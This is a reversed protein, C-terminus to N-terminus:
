GHEGKNRNWTQLIRREMRELRPLSVRHKLAARHIFARLVQDPLPLTFLFRQIRRTIRGFLLGIIGFRFLLFGALGVWMATMRGTAALVSMMFVYYLGQLYVHGMFRFVKVLAFSVAAPSFSEWMVYLGLAALAAQLPSCTLLLVPLAWLVLTKASELWHDSYEILKTMPVYEFVMGAYEYLDGITAQYWYGGSSLLGAPIGYDETKRARERGRQM